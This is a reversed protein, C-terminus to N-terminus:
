PQIVLQIAYIPIPLRSTECLLLEELQFAGETVQGVFDASGGVAELESKELGSAQFGPLISAELKLFKFTMEIYSSDGTLM